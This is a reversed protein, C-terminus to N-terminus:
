YKPLRVSLVIVRAKVFFAISLRAILASRYLQIM